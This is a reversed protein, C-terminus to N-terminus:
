REDFAVRFGIDNRRGNEDAGSRFASRCAHTMSDFGGGDSAEVWEGDILMRYSQIDSM